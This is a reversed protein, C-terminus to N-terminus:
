VPVLPAQPAPRLVREWQSLRRSRPRSAPHRPTPRPPWRPMPQSVVAVRLGRPLLRRERPAVRALAARVAAVVREVLASWRLPRAVLAELRV